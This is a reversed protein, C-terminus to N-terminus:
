FSILCPDLLILVMIDDSKASKLGNTIKILLTVTSLYSCFVSQVPNFLLYSAFAYLDCM